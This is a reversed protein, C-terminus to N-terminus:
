EQVDKIDDEFLIKDARFFFGKNIDTEAYSILFTNTNSLYEKKNNTISYELGLREEFIYQMVYQLRNTIYPTYILLM